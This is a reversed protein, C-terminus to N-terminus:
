NFLYPIDKHDEPAKIEVKRWVRSQERVIEMGIHNSLLILLFNWHVFAAEVPPVHFTFQLPGRLTCYLPIFM